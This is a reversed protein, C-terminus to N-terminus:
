TLPESPTTLGDQDHGFKVLKTGVFSLLEPDTSNDIEIRLTQAFAPDMMINNIRLPPNESVAMSYLTAIADLYRARTDPEAVTM